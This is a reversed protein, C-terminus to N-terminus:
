KMKLSKENMRVYDMNGAAKALDMSKTFAAMAEKKMGMGELIIGERRVMWYKQDDGALKNAKQIYTLADKMKKMNGSESLFTAAQYYDNMSPGAMMQEIQAMVADKANTKVSLAAMTNGWAMVIDAGDMTYNQVDITFTEVPSGTAMSKAMVTAAPTKEVYSNWSGGEYPFLMVEWEDAMPKTLVAYDGAALEAGGVMVKDTFTFKTAQNAGTRWIEGFPVLGDAAFIERGKMGPRSYTAHFDTLGIKTELKVTPSASPSNIQAQLGATFLLAMAAFALTFLQKRM